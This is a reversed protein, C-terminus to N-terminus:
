SPRTQVRAKITGLSATELSHILKIYTQYSQEQVIDVDFKFCKKRKNEKATVTRQLTTVRCSVDITTPQEQPRRGRNDM